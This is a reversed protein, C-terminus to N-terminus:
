IKVEPKVEKAPHERVLHKSSAAEHITTTLTVINM